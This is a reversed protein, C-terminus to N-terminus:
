KQEKLKRCIKLLHELSKDKGMGCNLCYEIEKSLEEIVDARGQEYGKNVADIMDISQSALYVSNDCKSM